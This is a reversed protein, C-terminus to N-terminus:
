KGGINNKVRNLIQAVDGRYFWLCTNVEDDNLLDVEDMSKDFDKLKNDLEKKEEGEILNIIEEGYGVNYGKDVTQIVDNALSYLDVEDFIKKLKIENKSM